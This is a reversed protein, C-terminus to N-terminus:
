IPLESLDGVYRQFGTAVVHVADMCLGLFGVVLAWFRQCRRGSRSDDDELAVAGAFDGLVVLEELEGAEVIPEGGALEVFLDDVIGVPEGGFNGAGEPDAFGHADAVVGV